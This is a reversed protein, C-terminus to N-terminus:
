QEDEAAEIWERLERINLLLVQQLPTLRRPISHGSAAMKSRYQASRRYARNGDPHPEFHQKEGSVFTTLVGDSAFLRM